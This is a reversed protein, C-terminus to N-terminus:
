FVGSNDERIKVIKMKQNAPKPREPFDDKMIVATEDALKAAIFAKLTEGDPTIGIDRRLKGGRVKGGTRSRWTGDSQWRVDGNHVRSVFRDVITAFLPHATTINVRVRHFINPREELSGNNAGIV